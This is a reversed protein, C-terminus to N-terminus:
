RTRVWYRRLLLRVAIHDAESRDVQLEDILTLVSQAEIAEILRALGSSATSGTLEVQLITVLGDDVPPMQRLGDLNAGLGAFALQVDAAFASTAQAPDERPEFAADAPTIAELAALRRELKGLDPRRRDLAALREALAANGQNQSSWQMVAAAGVAVAASVILGL